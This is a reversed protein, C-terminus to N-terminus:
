PVTGASTPTSVKGSSRPTNGVKPAADIDQRSNQVGTFLLHPSNASARAPSKVQMQRPGDIFYKLNRHPSHLRQRESVLKFLSSSGFINQPRALMGCAVVCKQETVPSIQDSHVRGPWNWM